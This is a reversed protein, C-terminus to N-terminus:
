SLLRMPYIYEQSRIRSALFHFLNCYYCAAAAAYAAAGRGRQAIRAARYILQGAALFRRVADYMDGGVHRVLCLNTGRYVLDDAALPPYVNQDVVGAEAYGARRLQGVCLIRVGLKLQIHEAGVVDGAGHQRM